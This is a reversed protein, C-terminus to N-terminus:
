YAIAHASDGLDQYDIAEADRIRSSPAIIVSNCGQLLASLQELLDTNGQEELRIESGDTM